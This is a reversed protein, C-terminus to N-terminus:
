DLRHIVSSLTLFVLIQRRKWTTCGKQVFSMRIIICVRRGVDLKISGIKEGGEETGGQTRFKELIFDYRGVYDASRAYSADKDDCGNLGCGREDVFDYM